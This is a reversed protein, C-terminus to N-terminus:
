AKVSFTLRDLMGGATGVLGRCKVQSALIELLVRKGQCGNKIAWALMSPADTMVCATM